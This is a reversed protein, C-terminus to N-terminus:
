VPIADWGTKMNVRTCTRRDDDYYTGRPALDVLFDPRDIPLVEHGVTILGKLGCAKMVALTTAPNAATVAYVHRNGKRILERARVGAPLLKVGDELMKLYYKTKLERVHIAEATGGALEPLWLTWHKKVNAETAEAGAKWYALRVLPLTDALCGDVDFAYIM